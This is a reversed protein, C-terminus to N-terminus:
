SLSLLNSWSWRVVFDVGLLLSFVFRGVGLFNSHQTGHITYNERAKWAPYESLDISVNVDRVFVGPTDGRFVLKAFFREAFVPRTPIPLDSPRNQAAVLAGFAVLCIFFFSYVSVKMRRRRAGRTKEHEKKDQRNSLFFSVWSLGFYSFM